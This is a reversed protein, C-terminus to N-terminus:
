ILLKTLRKVDLHKRTGTPTLNVSAELFGRAGNVSPGRLHSERTCMM